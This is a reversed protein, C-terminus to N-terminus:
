ALDEQTRFVEADVYESVTFPVGLLDEDEQLLIAEPVPVSTAGLAATIRHERGVDHASPTRGVRPPTRLVWATTGDSIKYTLNSRGGAILSASLPDAPPRGIAAMTRAVGDLHERSLAIM